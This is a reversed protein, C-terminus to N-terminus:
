GNRTNADVLREGGEVYLGVPALDRNYMGANTAFVLRKGKAELGAALSHFTGYPKGDAGSWFRRLDQKRLDTTCVRYPAGRHTIAACDVEHPREQATAPPLLALFAPFALFALVFPCALAAIGQHPPLRRRGAPPLFGRRMRTREPSTAAD